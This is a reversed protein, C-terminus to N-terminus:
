KPEGLVRSLNLDAFEVTMDENAWFGFSGLAM